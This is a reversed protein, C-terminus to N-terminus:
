FTEEGAREHTRELQNALPMVNTPEDEEPEDSFMNMQEGPRLAEYVERLEDITHLRESKELEILGRQFEFSKRSIGLESKIERYIASISKGTEKAFSRQTELKAELANIRRHADRIMGKRAKSNHQKTATGVAAKDGGEIVVPRKRTRPKASGNRKAAMTEGAQGM